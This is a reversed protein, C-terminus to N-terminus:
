ESFVQEGEMTINSRLFTYLEAETTMMYPRVWLIDVIGFTFMGLIQWGIFSLQLMFIKAKYGYTMRRSWDFIERTPMQPYEAIIYPVMSYEIGKIIGPIFLLLSWLMIKIRRILMTKVINFYYDRNFAFGIESVKTKQIRSLSFFSAEGVYLPNLVLFDILLRLIMLLIGIILVTATIATTVFGFGASDLLVDRYDDLTEILKESDGSEVAEYYSDYFNDVTQSDVSSRSSFGGTGAISQVIYLILCVIIASTHFRKLRQRANYKLATINMMKNM